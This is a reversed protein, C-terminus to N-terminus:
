QQNSQNSGGLWRRSATLLLLTGAAGLLIFAVLYLDAVHDWLAPRLPRGEDAVKDPPYINIALWATPALVAVGGWIAAVAGGKAGAAAISYVIFGVAPILLTAAFIIGIGWLGADGGARFIASAEADNARVFAVYGGVLLTLAFVRAFRVLCRSDKM